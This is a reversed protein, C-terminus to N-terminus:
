GGADHKSSYISNHALVAIATGLTYVAFTLRIFALILPSLVPSTVLDISNTTSPTLGLWAYIGDASVMVRASSSTTLTASSAFNCRQDVQGPGNQCEVASGKVAWCVWCWVLEVCQSHRPSTVKGEPM